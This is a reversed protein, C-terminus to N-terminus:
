SKHITGDESIYEVYAISETDSVEEGKESEDTKQLRYRQLIETLGDVKGELYAIEMRYKMKLNESIDTKVEQLYEEIMRVLAYIKFEIFDIKDTMEYMEEKKM